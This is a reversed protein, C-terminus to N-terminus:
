KERDWSILMGATCEPQGWRGMEWLLTREWGRQPPCGHPRNRNGQGKLWKGEQVQYSQKKPCLTFIGALFPFREHRLLKNLLINNFKSVTSGTTRKEQNPLYGVWGSLDDMWLDQANESIIQSWILLCFPPPLCSSYTSFISALASPSGTQLFRKKKGM